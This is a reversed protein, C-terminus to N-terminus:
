KIIVKNIPTIVNAIDKIKDNTMNSIKSIISNIDYEYGFLVHNLILQKNYSFKDSSRLLKDEVQKITSVLNYIGDDEKLNNLINNVEKICFDIKDQDLGVYVALIDNEMLMSSVSYCLHHEERIIKFLLSDAGSGFVANFLIKEERSLKTNIKYSLMINAQTNNDDVVLDTIEQNLPQYSFKNDLNTTTFDNVEKQEQLYNIQLFIQANIIKNLAQKLNNISINLLADIMEEINLADQYLTKALLNKVESQPNDKISKIETILDERKQIFLNENIDNISIIQNIIDLVIDQNVLKDIYEVSYEIVIKKAYDFSNISTKLDYNKAKHQRFNVVDLENTYDNIIRTLLLYIMVDDVNDKDITKYLNIRNVTTLPNIMSYNSNTNKIVKM